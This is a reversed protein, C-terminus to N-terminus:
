IGAKEIAKKCKELIDFREVRELSMSGIVLQMAEYLEPAAAILRANAEREDIPLEKSVTAIRKGTVYITPLPFINGVYWNEKTYSM